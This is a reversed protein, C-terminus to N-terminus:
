IHINTKKNELLLRCVLHDPSQLESTHEESRANACITITLLRTRWMKSPACRPVWTVPRPPKKSPLAFTRHLKSNAASSFRNLSLDSSRRTPFSPLHRPPTYSHLFFHYSPTPH